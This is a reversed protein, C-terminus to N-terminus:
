AGARGQTFAASSRHVAVCTLRISGDYRRSQIWKQGAGILAAEVAAVRQRLEEIVETEPGLEAPIALRM